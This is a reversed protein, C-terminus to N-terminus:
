PEVSRLHGNEPMGFLPDKLYQGVRVRGLFRGHDVYGELTGVQPGAWPNESNRFILAARSDVFHNKDCTGSGTVYPASLQVYALPSKVPFEVPNLVWCVAGMTVSVKIWYPREEPSVGPPDTGIDEPPKPPPHPYDNTMKIYTGGPSAQRPVPFSAYESTGRMVCGSLVLGALVILSFHNYRLKM